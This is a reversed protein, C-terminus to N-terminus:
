SIASAERLLDGIAGPSGQLASCSYRWRCSVPPIVFPVQWSGSQSCVKSNAALNSNYFEMCLMDQNQPKCKPGSLGGEGERVTDAKVSDEHAVTVSHLILRIESSGKLQVETQM